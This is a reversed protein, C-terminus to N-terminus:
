RRVSPSALRMMTKLYDASALVGYGTLRSMRLSELGRRHVAGTFWMSDRVSCTLLRISRDGTERDDM